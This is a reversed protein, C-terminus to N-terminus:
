NHADTSGFGGNRTGTTSDGDVISYPIFIGQMFASGAPVKFETESTLIAMIHGFNDSDAYDADIVGVTNNLRAKYKFGQGSRPTLLLFVRRFSGTARLRNDEKGRDVFRIGTPIVTNSKNNILLEYPAYFDYGASFATARKPLKISDYIRRVREEYSEILGDIMTLQESNNPHIKNYDKYFQEFPVKEFKILAGESIMSNM